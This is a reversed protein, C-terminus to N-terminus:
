QWGAHSCLLCNWTCVFHQTCDNHVPMRQLFLDAKTAPVYVGFFFFLISNRNWTKTYLNSSPRWWFYCKLVIRARLCECSTQEIFLVWFLPAPFLLPFRFLGLFLCVLKHMSRASLRVYIPIFISFRFFLAASMFIFYMIYWFSVILFNLFVWNLRKNRVCVCVKVCASSFIRIYGYSFSSILVLINAFTTIQEYIRKKENVKTM